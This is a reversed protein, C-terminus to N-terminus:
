GSGSRTDVPAQGPFRRILLEILPKIQSCYPASINTYKKL